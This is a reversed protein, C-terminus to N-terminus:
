LRIVEQIAAIDPIKNSDELVECYQLIGERDVVFASRKAVGKLGYFDECLIDYKKSVEKNFDSLLSFNYSQSKKFANLCYFSDVSIAAIKAECSEYLKMTDRVACLEDTCTSSFALPFFLLILNKKKNLGKLSKKSGNTDQLAFDPATDGKKLM